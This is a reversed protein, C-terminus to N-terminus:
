RLLEANCPEPDFTGPPSLIWSVLCQDGLKGEDWIRGGKHKESLRPKRILTLAPPEADGALVETMIEPELGCVSRFNLALENTTTPTAGGPFLQPDLTDTAARLGNQGYIKLPRAGNGHCDITGCRAELVRSVQTFSEIPPCKGEFTASEEVCAVATLSLCLLSARIM